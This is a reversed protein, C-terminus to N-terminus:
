RDGCLRTATCGYLIRATLPTHAPLPIVVTPPVRYTIAPQLRAAQFTSQHVEGIGDAFHCHIRPQAFLEEQELDGFVAGFNKKVMTEMQKLDAQTVFKDSYV